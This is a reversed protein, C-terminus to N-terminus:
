KGKDSAEKDTAVDPKFVAHCDECSQNLKKMAKDAAPQDGKHIAANVAGADDRMAHSFKKWLSVQDANKTASTDSITGQAIAAIVASYGASDKAKKKFNTKNAAQKLKTNVIPVQKMLDPLAAVKEWKLPDGAKGDAEAVKELAAVAKQASAYDKTAAVDQAAKMVAGAKEKYKNDQDHLGLALAIVVLTNADRVVKGESDNYEEQSAVTNKMTDVFKDAQRALDEAPAFTSVKPSDAASVPAPAAFLTMAVITAAAALACNNLTM